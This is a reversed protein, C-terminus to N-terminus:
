NPKRTTKVVKETLSMSGATSSVPVIPRAVCRCNIPEGPHGDSPLKNWAFVKGERNAHLPRVREDLSTAWQYQTIGVQTQRLRNLTGNFTAIQDRAIFKARKSSWAFQEVLEKAIATSRKGKTAGRILVDVVRKALEDTMGRILSVSRLMAADLNDAVDEARMAFSIDIGTNARVTSTFSSRHRQEEMTFASKLKPDAQDVLHELYARFSRSFWGLGIVSDLVSFTEADVSSLKDSLTESLQEKASTAEPLGHQRTFIAAQRLINSIAKRLSLEASLTPGIARLARSPKRTPGLQRRALELLDFRHHFLM